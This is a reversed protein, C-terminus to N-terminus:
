KWRFFTFHSTVCTFVLRLRYTKVQRKFVGLSEIDRIHASLTTGCNLPPLPFRDLAEPQWCVGKPHEWVISHHSRLSYANIHILQKRGTIMLSLNSILRKVEICSEATTHSFITPPFTSCRLLSDWRLWGLSERISSKSNGSACKSITLLRVIADSMSVNM